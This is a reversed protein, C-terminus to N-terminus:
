TGHIFTKYETSNHLPPMFGTNPFPYLPEPWYVRQTLEPHAWQMPTDAIGIKVGLGTFGLAYAEAANIHQLGGSKYYEPTEFDSPSLQANAASAFVFLNVVHALCLVTRNKISM